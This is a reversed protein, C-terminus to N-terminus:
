TLIWLFLNYRLVCVFIFYDFIGWLQQIKEVFGLMIELSSDDAFSLIFIYYDINKQELWNNFM